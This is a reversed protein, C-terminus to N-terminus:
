PALQGEFLETQVLDLTLGEGAEGDRVDLSDGAPEGEPGVDGTQELSGQDFGLVWADELFQEAEGTRGLQGVQQQVQHHQDLLGFDGLLLGQALDPLQGVLAVVGQVALM